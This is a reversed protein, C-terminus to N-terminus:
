TFLKKRIEWVFSWFNKVLSSRDLMHNYYFRNYERKRDPSRYKNMWYTEKM